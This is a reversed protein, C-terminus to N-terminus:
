QGESWFPSIAAVGQAGSQKAESLDSVNMGGLAYVPSSITEVLQKFKPWGIGPVGPHSATEKVPSLLIMDAGLKEAQLIEKEDHCSVSLLKNEAVPRADYDFLAKSSLHLGDADTKEFIDFSTNLLLQTQYKNCLKVAERVYAMYEKEDQIHKCRLQVIALHKNLSADLRAKFDDLGTFKGTIMYKSPLQLARIIARNARPFIEADLENIKMWCISQGEMGAPTGQFKDILYVDLFVSKDHYDHRVQILSKISDIHIGLEEHIERQLAKAVTEGEEVKGGPFEWLGGQHVHDPRLSILVENNQNVIAAVAVHIYSM